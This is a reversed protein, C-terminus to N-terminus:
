VMTHTTLQRRRMALQMPSGCTDRPFTRAAAAAELERLCNLYCAFWNSEGGEASHGIVKIYM